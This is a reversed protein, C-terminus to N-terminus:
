DKRELINEVIGQSMDGPSVLMALRDGIRIPGLETQRRRVVRAVLQHGNPLRVRYRGAPLVEMVTGALEIADNGPM